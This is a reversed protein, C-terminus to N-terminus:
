GFYRIMDASSRESRPFWNTCSVRSFRSNKLPSFAQDL